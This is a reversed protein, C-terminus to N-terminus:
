PTSIIRDIWNTYSVVLASGWVSGFKFYDAESLKQPIFKNSYKANAFQNASFSTVGAIYLKNGESVFNPSGSDGFGGTAEFNNGLTLGGLPNTSANSGDFDWIFGEKRNSANNNLLFGDIVNQGVRKVTTNPISQDLGDVGNGVQGYGVMTFITGLKLPKRYIQYIPVNKPIDSSLTLIALDANPKVNNLYNQFFQYGPAFSVSVVRHRSSFDKGANLVFDIGYSELNMKQPLSLTIIEEIPIGQNLLMQTLPAGICHGATLIYRSGIVAGTCQLLQSGQTFTGVGAYPSTTTNTDVRKAPSDPPNGQPDGAIIAQAKSPMILHYTAIITASIVLKSLLKM